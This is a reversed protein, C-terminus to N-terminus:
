RISQSVSHWLPDHAQGLDGLPPLAPGFGLRKNETDRNSWVTKVLFSGPRLTGWTQAGCEPSHTATGLVECDGGGGGGWGAVERAVRGSVGVGSSPFHEKELTSSSLAGITLCCFFKGPLKAM